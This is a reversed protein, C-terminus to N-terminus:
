KHGITNREKSLKSLVRQSMPALLTYSYIMDALAHTAVFGDHHYGPLCMTKMILYINWGNQKQSIQASNPENTVALHLRADHTGFAHALHM